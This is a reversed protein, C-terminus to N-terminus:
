ETNKCEVKPSAPRQTEAKALLQAVHLLRLLMDEAQIKKRKDM